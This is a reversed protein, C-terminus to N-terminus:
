TFVKGCDLCEWRPRTGGYGAPRVADGGCDPCKIGSDSCHMSTPPLTAPKSPHVGLVTDSKSLESEPIIYIERVGEWDFWDEYEYWGLAAERSKFPGVVQNEKGVLRLYFREDIPVKEGEYSKTM